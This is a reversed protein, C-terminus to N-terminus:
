RYRITLRAWRWPLAVGQPDVPQRAPRRGRRPQGLPRVAPRAPAIWRGRGRRAAPSGPHCRPAPLPHDRAPLQRRARHRRGAGPRQGSPGGPAPGAGHRSRGRGGAAGRTGTPLPYWASMPLTLLGVHLRSFDARAAPPAGPVDLAPGGAPSWGSTAARSAPWSSSPSPSPGPARPRGPRAWPAEGRGPLCLPAQGPVRRLVAAEPLLCARGTGDPGRELHGTGPAAGPAPRLRRDAGARPGPGPRCPGALPGPRAARQCRRRTRAPGPRHQRHGRGRLARRRAPPALGRLGCAPRRRNGAMVLRAAAHLQRARRYYGLGSWHSLVESESAAALTEVDPFRALFREWYPVVTAITTQQLMMESIWTGYLSRHRRWPLDRRNAAFWALLDRRVPEADASFLGPQQPEAV